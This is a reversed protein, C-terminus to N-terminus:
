EETKGKLLALVETVMDSVHVVFDRLEHYQEELGRVRTRDTALVNMLDETGVRRPQQAVATQIAALVTNVHGFATRVEERFADAAAVQAELRAIREEDNTM